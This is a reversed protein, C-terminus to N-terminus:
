CRMSFGLVVVEGNRMLVCALLFFSGHAFVGVGDASFAVRFAFASEEGLPGLVALTGEAVVSFCVGGRRGGGGGKGGEEGAM